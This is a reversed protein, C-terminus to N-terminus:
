IGCDLFGGCAAMSQQLLDQGGAGAAEAIEEDSAGAVDIQASAQEGAQLYAALTDCPLATAAARCTALRGDDVKCSAGLAGLAGALFGRYRDLDAMGEATLTEGTEAGHCAQIRGTLAGAYSDAWEPSSVGGSVDGSLAASLRDHIATCAMARAQDACAQVAESSAACDTGGYRNLIPSLMGIAEAAAAADEAGVASGEAALCAMFRDTLAQVYPATDATTTSAPEDDQGWAAGAALLLACAAARTGRTKM